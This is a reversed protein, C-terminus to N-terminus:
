KIPTIHKDWYTNKSFDINLFNDLYFPEPYIWSEAQLHYQKDDGKVISLKVKGYDLLTALSHEFEGQANM